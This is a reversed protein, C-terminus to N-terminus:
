VVLRYKAYKTSYGDEDVGYVMDTVINKGEKTRLDFVRASLRYCRFLKIADDNTIYKHTKLYALIKKCHSEDRKSM